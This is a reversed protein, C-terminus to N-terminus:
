GDPNLDCCHQKRFDELVEDAFRAISQVMEEGLHALAADRLEPDSCRLAKRMEAEREECEFFVIAEEDSFEEHIM